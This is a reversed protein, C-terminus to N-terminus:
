IGKKKLWKGVAFVIGAPLLTTLANGLIFIYFPASNVFSNYRMYDRVLTIVFAALFIRVALFCLNHIKM